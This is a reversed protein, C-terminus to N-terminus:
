VGEQGKIGLKFSRRWSANGSHGLQLHGQESGGVQVQLSAVVMVM